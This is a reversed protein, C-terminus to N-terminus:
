NLKTYRISLLYCFFFGNPPLVQSTRNSNTSIPQSLMQNAKRKALVTKISDPKTPSPNQSSSANQM